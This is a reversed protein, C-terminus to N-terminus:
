KTVAATYFKVKKRAVRLVPFIFKLAVPVDRAFQPLVVVRPRREAAAEVGADDEHVHRSQLRDSPALCSDLWDSTM